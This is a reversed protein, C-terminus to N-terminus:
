CCFMVVASAVTVSVDAEAKTLVVNQRVTMTITVIVAETPPAHTIIAGAKMMLIMGIAESPVLQKVVFTLPLLLIIAQLENNGTASYSAPAPAAAPVASATPPKAQKLKEAIARAKSLADNFNVPASPTTLSPPPPVATYDSRNDTM